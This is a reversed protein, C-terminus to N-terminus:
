AQGGPSPSPNAPGGPGAPGAPGVGAPEAEAGRSRRRADTVSAVVAGALGAFRDREDPGTAAGGYWAAEFLETAAAFSGAGAPHRENVDQVYEGATRGVAAAIVDLDVLRTVLSRYRCLLGESWRGAAEHREAQALWEDPTRHEDVALIVPDGEDGGSGGGWGNGWVRSILYATLGAIAAVFLALVIWAIWSAAGASGLGINGLLRGLFDSIAQQIRHVFSEPPQRYQRRALIEDAMRRVKAPDNQPEPLDERPGPARGLRGLLDVVGSGLSVV